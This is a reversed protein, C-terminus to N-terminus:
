KSSWSVPRNEARDPPIHVFKDRRTYLLGTVASENTKWRYEKDLLAILDRVTQRPHRKLVAAMMDVRTLGGNQSAGRRGKGTSANSRWQAEPAHRRQATTSKLTTTAKQAKAVPLTPMARAIVGGNTTGAQLLESIADQESEFLEAARKLGQLRKNLTELQQQRSEIEKEITATEDRLRKEFEDLSNM